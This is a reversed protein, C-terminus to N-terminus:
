APFGILLSKYYDMLFMTIAYVLITATPVPVFFFKNYRKNIQQQQYDPWINCMMLPDKALSKKKMM